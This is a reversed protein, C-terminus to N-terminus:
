TGNRHSGAQGAATPCPLIELLRPLPGEDLEEEDRPEDVIQEVVRLQAGRAVLDDLCRRVEAQGVQRGLAVLLPYGPDNLLGALAQPEWGLTLFEQLLCRLMLLPDGFAPQAILELPDDAEMPRTLPHVKPVWTGTDEPGSM